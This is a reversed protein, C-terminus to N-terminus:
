RAKQERGAAKAAPQERALLVREIGALDRLPEAVLWGAATFIEQVAPYQGAGLEVMLFGEPALLGGCQAAIQRYCDLGDEGGDLAERPEWDKIETQLATIEETAIYPPNSLLADFTGGHETNILPEAWQGAKGQIFHIRDTVANLQANARALDLTDARVDTAYVTPEPLAHAISIAICGTGTGLEAVIPKLCQSLREIAAEVLTETEPRPILAREDCSFTLGFFECQGILYPLPRGQAVELLAQELKEQQPAELELAPHTLHAYRTGTIYDVILRAKVRAEEATVSAQTQLYHISDEYARQVNMKAM